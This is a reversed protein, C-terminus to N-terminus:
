QGLHAPASGHRPTRLHYRGRALSYLHGRSFQMGGGADNQKLRRRVVLGAIALGIIVWGIAPTGGHPNVTLDNYHAPAPLFFSFFDASNAIITKLPTNLYDGGKAAEALLAVLLPSLILASLAGLALAPLVISSLRYVISSSPRPSTTSETNSTSANATGKQNDGATRRGNDTVFLMWMEWAVYLGTFLVLATFFYWTSLASGVLALSAGVIWKWGGPAIGIARNGVAKVLCLIYLPIWGTSIEVLQGLDFSTAAIPCMMYLAGAVWAAPRPIKLVRCLAYAASASFALQVLRLLNFTALLGFIGQFPISLVGNVPDVVHYILPQGGPFHIYDTYYPNQHLTLLSFKVWWLNWIHQYFDAGRALVARDALYLPLPWSFVIALLGYGAVVLARVRWTSARLWELVANARSM